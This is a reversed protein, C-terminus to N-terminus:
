TKGLLLTAAPTGPWGAVADIFPFPEDLVGKVPTYVAVPVGVLEEVAPAAARLVGAGATAFPSKNPASNPTATKQSISIANQSLTFPLCIARFPITLVFIGQDTKGLKCFFSIINNLSVFM